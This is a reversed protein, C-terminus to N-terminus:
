VRIEGELWVSAGDDDFVRMLFVLKKENIGSRVLYKPEIGAEVVYYKKNINDPLLYIEIVKKFINSELFYIETKVYSTTLGSATFNISLAKFPKNEIIIMRNISISINRKFNAKISYGNKVIFATINYYSFNNKSLFSISFDIRVGYLKEIYSKTLQICSDFYEKTQQEIDPMNKDSSAREDMTLSKWKENIAYAFCGKVTENISSIVLEHTEMQFSQPLMILSTFAIVFAIFIALLSAILTQAYRLM